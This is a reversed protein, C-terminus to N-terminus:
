RRERHRRNKSNRSEQSLLRKNQRRFKYYTNRSIGNKNCCYEITGEGNIYDNVVKNHINILKLRKLDM